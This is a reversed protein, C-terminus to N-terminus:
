RQVASQLVTNVISGAVSLGGGGNEVVCVFALPYEEDQLFGVFWAHPSVGDQVEATGSKACINLGSFKDEGYKSVVNNRMMESIKEAKEESMYRGDSSKSCITTPLGYSTTVKKLTRPNTAVGGNAIAGVFRLMEAPNVLDRFQGIGSWALGISGDQAVEFYGAATPVGSVEFSELLGYKEAYQRITEGGLELSIQAFVCNCSEALATRIDITGHNGTCRVVDGNVDYTGSCQYTRTDFDEFVDMAASLTVIKFVSGPTFVSSIFRNMYVGAYQESNIDIETPANPDFSPTSVMCLIEGSEYNYVAVTGKRGNLASYAVQNLESDITLYVENGKSGASYVGNIFDYGMLKDAYVTLAGSGINGAIDGVAHLTSVRTNWDDNYYRHGDNTTGSLVVGNRDMVSGVCLVGDSYVHTNFPASVWDSGGAFLKALYLAMGILLFAVLVLAAASRRKIKKM